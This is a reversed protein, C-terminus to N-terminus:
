VPHKKDNLTTLMYSKGMKLKDSKYTELQLVNLKLSNGDIKSHIKDMHTGLLTAISAQTVMLNLTSLGELPIPLDCYYNGVSNLGWYVFGLALYFDLSTSGSSFKFRTMNKEIAINFIANLLAYAYGKRRLLHPTFFNHITLYMRYHDITFFIYSLHNNDVDCLTICGESQWKSREDWWYLSTKAFKISNPDIITSISSIYADRSLHELHFEPM